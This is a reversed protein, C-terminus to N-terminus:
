AVKLANNKARNYNNKWVQIFRDVEEKTNEEGLSVRIATSAIKKDVGMALLVHSVSVKGSSCASGSSVAIGELDFSILQTESPMNPMAICSTNPLREANEGFIVVDPAHSKIESELYNRLNINSTQHNITASVGFGAIAAVNETGARFGSEQGGGTIEAALKIGKKIILAAVGQPGGFKHASVTMMDVNLNNFSVPIKGFGQSADTHLFGNYRYVLEAIKKMPQIVGTENNALMVSVLARGKGNKLISELASLNVLGNGDVPIYSAKMEEAPKLVSAHETASIVVYGADVFGKIALNNAETGSSTFIVQAGESDTAKQIKERAEEIIKRAERGFGHVSSANYPEIFAYIMAEAVEKKM